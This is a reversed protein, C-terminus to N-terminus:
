GPGPLRGNAPREPDAFVAVSDGRPEHTRFLVLTLVAAVVYAAAIGTTM